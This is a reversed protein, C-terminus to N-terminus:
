WVTVQELCKEPMPSSAPPFPQPFAAKGTPTEGGHLPHIARACWVPAGKSSPQSLPLTSPTM